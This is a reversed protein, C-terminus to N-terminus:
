GKWQDITQLVVMAFTLMVFLIILGFGPWFLGQVFLTEGRRRKRLDHREPM